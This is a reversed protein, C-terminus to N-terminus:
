SAMGYNNLEQVFEFEWKSLEYKVTEGNAKEVRIIGTSIVHAVTEKRNQFSLSRLYAASEYIKEPLVIGVTTLAGDLSDQGEYFPAWPYPNEPSSFRDILTRITDNYGGNLLIMTKHDRAWESLIDIKECTDDEPYKVFMDAIAHGAQIGQQISKLYMNGFFYARM